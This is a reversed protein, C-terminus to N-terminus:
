VATAPSADAPPTATTASVSSAFPPVSREAAPASAASDWAPRSASAPWLTSVAAGPNTDAATSPAVSVSVKSSGRSSPEPEAGAPLAKVTVAAGASPSARAM